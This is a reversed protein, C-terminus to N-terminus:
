AGRDGALRELKALRRHAAGKTIPPRAKTALEALTAAPHRARLRAIERLRRPVTELAGSSELERIAQLQRHAARGARVLNAHDANALRNAKAKAEGVVAAEDLALAADSAGALALLDAIADAGKAYALAHRSRDRVSLRVEGAAAVAALFHAGEVGATRLELHPAKPGTVSGAGLLAGRVYASRCCARGVVRKPPRELPANGRSLVGAERLLQLARPEGPVHLEYRTARDFSRQRYTRIEAAVGFSRLLSFARRAVPGDSLDLHASLQGRGLLHLRGASHFLASLEALRDCRRKPDIAALESRVADSLPV